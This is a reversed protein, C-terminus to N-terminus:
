YTEPIDSRLPYYFVRTLCDLIVVTQPHVKNHVKEIIKKASLLMFDQMIPATNTLM